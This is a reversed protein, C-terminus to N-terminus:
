ENEVRKKMEMIILLGVQVLLTPIQIPDSIAQEYTIGFQEYFGEEIIIRKGTLKDTFFLDKKNDDIERTTIEQNM